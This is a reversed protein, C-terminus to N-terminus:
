GAHGDGGEAKEGYHALLARIEALEAADVENEELLHQLASSTKGGFVNAVLERLMPRLVERREVRPRYVYATGQRRHALLGKKEMVQLTSLVTTYARPKGDPLAALVQRATLAGKEWLLSLVQLELQSPPSWTM